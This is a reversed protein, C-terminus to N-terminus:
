NRVCRDRHPHRLFSLPRAKHAANALPAAFIRERKIENKTNRIKPTIKKYDNYINM